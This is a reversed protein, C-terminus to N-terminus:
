RIYENLTAKIAYRTEKNVIETIDAGSYFVTAHTFAELNVSSISVKRLNAKSISLRSPEDPMPVYILKDLHGYRIIASDM